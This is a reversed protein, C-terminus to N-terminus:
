AFRNGNTEDSYLNNANNHRFTHPFFPHRVEELEQMAADVKHAQISSSAKLKQMAQLKKATTKCAQDYDALLESRYSLAGKIQIHQILRQHVYYAFIPLHVRLSVEVGLAGKIHM